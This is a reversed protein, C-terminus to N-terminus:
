GNTVPPLGSKGPLGEHGHHELDRHEEGGEGGAQGHQEHEVLQREEAMRNKMGLGDLVDRAVLQGEADLVRPRSEIRFDRALREDVVAGLGDLDNRNGHPIWSEVKTPRSCVMPAMTAAQTTAPTPM